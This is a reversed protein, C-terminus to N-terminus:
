KVGELLRIASQWEQLSLLGEVSWNGHSIKLSFNSPTLETGRILPGNQPTIIEQKEPVVPLSIFIPESLNSEQWTKLTNVNIGLRKQIDYPSYESLLEIVQNRIQEPTKKGRCGNKVRRWKSLEKEVESIKSM